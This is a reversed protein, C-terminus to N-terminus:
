AHAREYSLGSESVGLPALLGGGILLGPLCFAAIFGGGGFLLWFLPELKHILKM